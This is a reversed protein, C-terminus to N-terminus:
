KAHTDMGRCSTWNSVGDNGYVAARMCAGNQEEWLVSSAASPSIGAAHASIAAM